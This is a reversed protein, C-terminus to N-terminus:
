YTVTIVVIDTYTGPNPTGQAPVRAYVPVSATNGTGTGAVTNTGITTGWQQTRGVDRFLSYNVTSAGNTMKRAALTAGTGTGLGLGITFPLTPSCAVSLNTSADINGPINAVTGFNISANAITCKSPVTASMSFPWSLTGTTMAPCLQGTTTYRSRVHTLTGSFAAAYAGARVTPQGGFVRGYMTLTQTPGNSGTTGTPTLVEVGAGGTKWSSWKVTRGADSYIQYSMTNAGSIAIRNGGVTGGNPDGMNLCVKVTRNATGTCRVTVTATVDVAAGLLVDVTGFAINSPTITCTQAYGLAPMALLAFLVALIRIPQM